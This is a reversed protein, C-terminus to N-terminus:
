QQRRASQGQCSLGSPVCCICAVHERCWRDIHEQVTSAVFSVQQRDAPAPSSHGAGPDPKLEGGAGRLWDQVPLDSGLQSEIDNPQILPQGGYLMQAEEAEQAHSHQLQDQCSDPCKEDFDLAEDAVPKTGTSELAADTATSAPQLTFHCKSYTGFSAHSPLNTHLVLKKVCHTVGCFLM